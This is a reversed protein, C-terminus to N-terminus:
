LKRLATGYAHAEIIPPKKSGQGSINSTEYKVNFVLEAGLRDAEEKMRLLAERRARDLLSEYTSIKGGFFNRLGAVFTKFYDNAIVVNGSVLIQDYKGDQPPMRSAMAPLKNMQEEREILSKFHKKEARRGFFYGLTVFVAVYILQEM